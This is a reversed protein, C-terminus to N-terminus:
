PSSLKVLSETISQILSSNAEFLHECVVLYTKFILKLLEIVELSVTIFIAENRYRM